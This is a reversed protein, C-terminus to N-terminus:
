RHLTIERPGLRIVLEALKGLAVTVCSVSDM